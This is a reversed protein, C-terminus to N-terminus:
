KQLIAKGGKNIVSSLLNIGFFYEEEKRFSHKRM